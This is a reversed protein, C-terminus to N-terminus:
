RVRTIRLILVAFWLLRATFSKIRSVFIQWLNYSLYWRGWLLQSPLMSQGLLKSASWDSFNQHGPLLVVPMHSSLYQAHALPTPTLILRQNSGTVRFFWRESCWEFSYDKLKLILGKDKTGVLYRFLHNVYKTHSQRPEELFCTCQHVSYAIDYRTSKKLFKLRRIFSYYKFKKEDNPNCKFGKQPDQHISGSDKNTQYKAQFLPGQNHRWDSIVPDIWHAQIRTEKSASIILLTFLAGM